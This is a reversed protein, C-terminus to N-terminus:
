EAVSSLCLREWQPGLPFLFFLDWQWRGVLGLEGWWERRCGVLGRGAWVEPTGAGVGGILWRCGHLKKGMRWSGV